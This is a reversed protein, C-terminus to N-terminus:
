GIINRFINIRVNKEKLLNNAIGLTLLIFFIWNENLQTYEWLYLKIVALSISLLLMKLMKDGCIFWISLGYLYYELITGYSIQTEADLSLVLISLIFMFSAISNSLIYLRKSEKEKIITKFFSQNNSWLKIKILLKYRSSLLVSILSVFFLFILLVVHLTTNNPITYDNLQDRVFFLFLLYTFISYLAIEVISIDFEYKYRLSKQNLWYFFYSYIIPIIVCPILM